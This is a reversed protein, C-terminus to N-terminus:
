NETVHHLIANLSNRATRIHRAADRDNLLVATIATSVDRLLISVLYNITNGELRARREAPLAANIAEALEQVKAQAAKSHSRMHRFIAQRNTNIARWDAVGNKEMPYLKVRGGDAGLQFWMRSIEIAVHEQGCEAAWAEVEDKLKEIKQREKRLKEMNRM